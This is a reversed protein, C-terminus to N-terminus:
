RSDGPQPTDASLLIRRMRPYYEANNRASRDVRKLVWFSIGVALGGGIISALTSPIHFTDAWASGTYAGAILALVPLLYVLLSIRLLSRAPVSIEVYDGVKAHLDNTVEVLMERENHVHCAARAECTACASSKQIRVLAKQSTIKEIVGKETVM